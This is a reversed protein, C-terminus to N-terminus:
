AAEHQWPPGAFARQQFSEFLEDLTALHDVHAARVRDMSEMRETFEKQMGLPPVILEISSFQSKNVLGTMAGTSKAQILRKGIRLQELAFRPLMDRSIFANIQQNIAVRRGTMASRGISAPSGAICTVLIAEAPVVRAIEEGHESLRELAPAVYLCSPDINDTKVWEIGEGYNGMDTRSPTNGTVVTGLAGITKREWAVGLNAPDGFTDLFISQTLNDLLAIAERRKARLTDVQELVAAIRKQTAIPPLPVKLGLLADKGVTAQNVWQRCMGLFVGRSFQSLLWSALFAPDLKSGDVRIRLFHNSYVTPEDGGRFLLTKGVMEPSNTSNFLVDNVSLLSKAVAPMERPVRRRKALDLKGDRTVNNMRLQFVGGPDDEGCAFGPKVDRVLSGLPAVDWSTM